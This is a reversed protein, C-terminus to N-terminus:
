PRRRHPLRRRAWLATHEGGHALARTAAAVRADTGRRRVATLLRCGMEEPSLPTVEIRDTRARGALEGPPDGAEDRGARRRDRM